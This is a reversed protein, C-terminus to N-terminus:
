YEDLIRRPVAPGIQGVELQSRCGGDPSSSRMTRKAWKRHFGAEALCNAMTIVPVLLLLPALSVAWKEERLLGAAVDFVSRTLKTYGGSEGWVTGRGYRLNELFEAKCRAGPVVTCTLGLGALSHADSGAVPSKGWLEALKAASRNGGKSMQGNRTELLPFYHEFLVFDGM